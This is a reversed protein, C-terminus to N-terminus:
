TDSEWRRAARAWALSQERWHSAIHFRAAIGGIEILSTIRSALLTM